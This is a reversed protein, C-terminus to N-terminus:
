TTSTLEAMGEILDYESMRLLENLKAVREGGLVGTKLMKSGTAVAIHSIHSDSSEGSRHSTIIKIGNKACEKAFQLADYLSGAQNVKLIAGSCAGIKVAKKVMSANTVLMDDGTVLTRPNKKTLTAMSEFDGEHVPDEAYALRYDRILRNTFEIQEGADRKLGQRAYDYVNNSEDWFSSSAFDIGLAMDKGLTYGCNKVAKEAIELAQDNNVNPAWAGEDGRGYTFRRDTSEIVKRLESHLKFNMELAEMVSKAGVPCALVEQIDPTGPGAHAGGGLINGLPFPFRYPGRPKLLQFLPVSRAKAASDVAAISLAYAVSGGIKSYNDTDDISRLVDFVAKTDSADVGIFKKKSANFAALAKDAKNEPFSQAELKGVSAGSPACARGSYKKDTIVDIEITKSGRSNFLLRGELSTISPM